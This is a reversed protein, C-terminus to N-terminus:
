PGTSAKGRLRALEDRHETAREVDGVKEFHRMLAEHVQEMRPNRRLARYYWDVAAADNGLRQLLRAVEACVEAADPAEELDTRLLEDLRDRDHRLSEHRALIGTAEKQRGPQLQLCRYYQYLAEIEKPRLDLARRAFTEGVDPTGAECEIKSRLVLGEVHDPHAEFLRDLDRRAEDEESRLAHFRASAILVEPQEPRTARLQGLYPAAANSQNRDLSLNVLSVAARWRNPQLQLAHRYAETAERRAGRQQHVWGLWYWARASEPDHQLWKELADQAKGLRRERMALRALVELILSAERPESTVASRLTAEADAPEGNEARLLVEEFQTASSSGQLKECENLYGAAAAFDGATRELRAAFLRVEADWPWLRLCWALHQRADDFRDEDLATRAEAFQHRAWLHGGLLSLGFLLGLSGIVWRLRRRPKRLLLALRHM